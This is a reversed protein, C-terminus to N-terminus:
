FGLDLLKDAEDFILVELQDLDISRSNQLHDLMRGPTAIIFEPFTRLESEQRQMDTSGIVLCARLKTYVNLKQFVEFIQYALERTPTVILVKSYNGRMYYQYGNTRMQTYYRQILPLLFAATKGSGTVSSGLIDKGSLAAPISLSQIPTPHEYGLEEIAKLLPKCLNFNQWHHTPRTVKKNLDKKELAEEEELM